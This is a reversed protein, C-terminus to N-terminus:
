FDIHTGVSYFIIDKDIVTAELEFTFVNWVKMGFGAGGALGFDTDERNGGQELKRAVSEYLMGLKTKFYGSQWLPMRYVGYAAATWIDYSGKDIVQGTNVDLEEHDGGSLGVNIEGELSMRNTLGYGYLVGLSWLPDADNLAIDMFGLKPLLYNDGKKAYAIDNFILIFFIIALLKKM